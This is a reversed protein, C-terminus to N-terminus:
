NTEWTEIATKLAEIALSSCHMKVPPLGDLADVINDHTLQKAEETPKGKVLVTTMSASAIAAPCGYVKFRIDEIIKTKPDIKLTFTMIDGCNVNGVSASANADPLTGVNEPNELYGLVKKSYNM